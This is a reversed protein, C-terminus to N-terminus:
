SQATNGEGGGVFSKNGSSTNSFGGCVFSLIGSANNTSGGSIASFSASATNDHGGGVFSKEGSALNSWGAGVFSLEGSAINTSGGSIASYAASATNDHGCGIFSKEGNALNSWGGGVFSLDGSAINESGGAVTSILGSATNAYGGGVFSKDGITSNNHGGAITSYVASANNYFGGGVTTYNNSSTNDSGGGVLSKIGGATNSWGGGVFSFAGSATNSSGGSIVSSLGSAVEVNYLRNTQFDVAYNGRNNGGASTGDPQHALIAGTGKPNIVFDVNTQAANPTFKVGYKSDYTYNSETFHTLSGGGSPTAWETTGDANTKLFYGSTGKVSPFTYSESGNGNITLSGGITTNANKLITFANSRSSVSSGNGVVFLRDADEWDTSSIPTYLTNLRGVVVEYSSSGTLRSGITTSHDGSATNDNGIALAAKGSATNEYGGILTSYNGSAVKSANSRFTQLDIAYIGRTNGGTAAGDPQNAIIAGDGKPQIVFDVNNSANDPTLEVGTKTDYTYNSETFNELGAAGSLKQWQSGDYYYFADNGDPGNATVYVLLGTAPSLPLNNFDVRPILVGKDSAKVDLAASPDPESGDNNIAVNQAFSQIGLFLIAAILLLKHKMRDQNNITKM